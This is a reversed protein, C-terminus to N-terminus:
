REAIAVLINVRLESLLKSKTQIKKMLASDNASGIDKLTKELVQMEIIVKALIEEKNKFGIYLV